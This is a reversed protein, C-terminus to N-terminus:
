VAYQWRYGGATGHGNNCVRYINGYGCGTEEQAKIASEYVVGTDICLVPKPNRGNGGFHKGRKSDSIKKKSEDSQPHSKYNQIKKGAKSESLNKRYEDTILLKHSDSMKKKTEDSHKKGIHKLSCNLRVNEDKYYEILKKSIKEKVDDTIKLGSEGGFTMNYGYRSDSSKYESILRKEELEAQEKSLGDILIEHSINDWGYKLIANYFYPHRKYGKGNEWRVNVNRRTIGIYVKGSPSTHKYVCYTKEMALIREKKLSPPPFM